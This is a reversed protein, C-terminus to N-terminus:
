KPVNNPVDFTRVKKDNAKSFGVRWSMGPADMDKRALKLLVRAVSRSSSAALMGDVEDGDSDRDRGQGATLEKLEENHLVDLFEDASAGVLDQM